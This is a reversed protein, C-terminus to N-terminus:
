QKSNDNDAGDSGTHKPTNADNGGPLPTSHDQMENQRDLYFQEVIFDAQPGIGRHDAKGMELLRQHTEPKVRVVKEQTTEM